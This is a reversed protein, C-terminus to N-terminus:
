DRIAVCEHWAMVRYREVRRGESEVRLRTSYSSRCLFQVSTSASTGRNEGRANFM